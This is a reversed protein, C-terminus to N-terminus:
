VHEKCLTCIGREIPEACCESLPEKADDDEPEVATIAQSEDIELLDKYTITM